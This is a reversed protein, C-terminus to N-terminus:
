TLGVVALFLTIFIFAVIGLIVLFCLFLLLQFNLILRVRIKDIQSPGDVEGYLRRTEELFSYVLQHFDIKWGALFGFEWGHDNLAAALLACVVLEVAVDTLAEALQIPKPCLEEFLRKDFVVLGDMSIFGVSQAYNSLEESVEERGTSNSPM